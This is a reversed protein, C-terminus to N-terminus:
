HRSFSLPFVRPQQRWGFSQRQSMNRFSTLLISGLEVTHVDDVIVTVDKSTICGIVETVVTVDEVLTIGDTTGIITSAEIFADRFTIRSNCSAM